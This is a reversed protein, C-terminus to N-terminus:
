RHLTDNGGIPTSCVTGAYTVNLDTTSAAPVATGNLAFPCIAATGNTTWSMTTGNLTGNATGSVPVGACTATYAIAATTAGTPTITWSMSTCAGTTATSRWTGTFASMATAAPTPNSPSMHDCAALTLLLGLLGLLRLNVIGHYSGHSSSRVSV